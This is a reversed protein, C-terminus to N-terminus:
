RDTLILAQPSPLLAHMRSQGFGAQRFMDDLERFTYADGHETRQLMIISFSAAVPPSVRDENPVFEITAVTGGPNMATRVRKLLAVNTAADFHHLFNPLLVLDYGTGLDVDFASGPITHFRSAVGAQAANESAVALVNAWDLAYVEANANQQAVTIGYIGHGAAIDLVKLKRDPQAIFPAALGASMRAIPMMFRAFNVWVDSEPELSNSDALPAGRRVVEAVNRFSAVNREDLLFNAITGIYVPSRKDLFVRSDQTLAYSQGNKILFGLVVLFDCLIRVGRESAKTRTAIESATTAGQAIHTFLELDIAGKLAMSQQYRNLTAFITSPDANIAPAQIATDRGKPLGLDAAAENTQIAV